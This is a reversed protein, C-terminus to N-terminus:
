IRPSLLCGNRSHLPPLGRALPRGRAWRSDFSARLAGTILRGSGPIVGRSNSASCRSRGAITCALGLVVHAAVVTLFLPDSLPIDIGAVIVSRGIM